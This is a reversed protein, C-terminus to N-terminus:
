GGAAVPMALKGAKLAAIEDRLRAAEEFELDRAHRYMKEELQRVKKMLAEESLGRYDGRAEAARAQRRTSGAGPVVAGEMVDAVRKVIGQPTIGHESNFALQVERRREMEGLARQMSGTV